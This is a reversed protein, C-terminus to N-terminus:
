GGDRVKDKDDPVATESIEARGDPLHYMELGDFKTLSGLNDIPLLM